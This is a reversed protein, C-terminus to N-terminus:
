KLKPGVYNVIAPMNESIFLWKNENLKHKIHQKRLYEIRAYLESPSRMLHDHFSAQWKFKPFPHNNHPGHVELFKEKSKILWEDWHFHEYPNPHRNCFLIQNIKDSSVRKISHMIESINFTSGVHIILHIHDPNVKYGVLHAHKLEISTKLTHIFIESLIDEEFFLIRNFPNTTVFYCANEFYLRKM